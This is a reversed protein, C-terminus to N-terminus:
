SFSMKHLIVIMLCAFSINAVCPGFSIMYVTRMNFFPDDELYCVSHDMIDSDPIGDCLADLIRMTFYPTLTM